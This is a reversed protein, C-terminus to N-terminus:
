LELPQSTWSSPEPKTHKMSPGHGEATDEPHQTPLLEQTEYPFKVM